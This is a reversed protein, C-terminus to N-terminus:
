LVQVDKPNQEEEGSRYVFPLRVEVTFGEQEAVLHLGYGEGYAYLIRQHINLLGIHKGRVHM